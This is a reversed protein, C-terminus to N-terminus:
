RPNESRENESGIFVSTFTPSLFSLRTSPHFRITLLYGIMTGVNAITYWVLNLASLNFTVGPYDNTFTNEIGSKHDLLVFLGWIFIGSMSFLSGFGKIYDADTPRIWAKCVVHTFLVWGLIPFVAFFINEHSYYTWYYRFAEATGYAETLYTSSMTLYTVTFLTIAVRLRHQVPVILEKSEALYRNFLVIYPFVCFPVWLFLVLLLTSPQKQIIRFPLETIFSFFGVYNLLAFTIAVILVSAISGLRSKSPNWTLFRIMRM